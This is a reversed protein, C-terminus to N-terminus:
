SWALEAVNGLKWGSYRKTLCLTCREPLTHAKETASGVSKFRKAVLEQFGQHTVSPTVRQDLGSQEAASGMVGSEGVEPEQVDPDHLKLQLGTGWLGLIKQIGKHNASHFWRLWLGVAEGMAELIGAERVLSDLIGM